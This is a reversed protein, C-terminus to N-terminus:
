WYETWKNGKMDSEETTGLPELWMYYGDSNNGKPDKFTLKVKGGYKINENSSSKSGGIAIENKDIIIKANKDLYPELKVLAKKIELDDGYKSSDNILPEENDLQYLQAAVRFSNLTAIAKTDKAKAIYSRLQLGVIGSLIGIIAVAIIIEILSFARNKM